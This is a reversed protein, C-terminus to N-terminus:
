YEEWYATAWVCQRATWYCRPGGVKDEYVGPDMYGGVDVIGGQGRVEAGRSRASQQMQQLQQTEPFDAARMAAEPDDLLQQKWQPDSAARDLVKETLTRNLLRTQELTPLMGETM